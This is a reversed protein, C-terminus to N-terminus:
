LLLCKMGLIYHGLLARHTTWMEHVTVECVAPIMGGMARNLTSYRNQLQLTSTVFDDRSSLSKLWNYHCLKLIRKTRIGFLLHVSEDKTSVTQLWFQYPM